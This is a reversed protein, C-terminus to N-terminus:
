SGRGRRLGRRVLALAEPVQFAATLTFYLLGFPLLVLLATLIPHLAPPPLVAGHWEAAVGRLPGHLWVLGLKIVLGLAGSVAASGWLTALSRASLGTRGIRANLRHRLLLFEIWAAVGTTATIGAGGLERPLGLQDPLRVAAWWALAATLGVRLAAFLLPTRTDKLAYFASAYLRGLTSALLGVTSGM